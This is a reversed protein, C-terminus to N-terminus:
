ALVADGWRHSLAACPPAEHLPFAKVEWKTLGGFGVGTFRELRIHPVDTNLPIYHHPRTVSGIAHGLGADLWDM